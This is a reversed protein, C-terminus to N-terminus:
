RQRMVQGFRLAMIKKLASDYTDIEWAIYRTVRTM